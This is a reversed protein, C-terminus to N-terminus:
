KAVVFEKAMGHEVHPKGDKADPVFCIMGYTGPEIDVTFYGTRGKALNAIGDLPKAPPPGKMGGAEWAGFDRMTKGPAMQMFVVEHPQEADNVVRFTRRGVTLPKSLEFAYDKLHLDIDAVPEKDTSKQNTVTLSSVMGKMAHPTKDGPSPIWCILGYEGPALTLTSSVTMGPGAFNPGGVDTAWAPPRHDAQVAAMYDKVTKGKPLQIITLHHLEKGENVLRFTVTGSKVTQPPIFAFDNARVTVVTPDEASVTRTPELLAGAALALAPLAHLM